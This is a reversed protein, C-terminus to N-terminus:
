HRDIKMTRAFDSSADKNEQLRVDLTHKGITVEQRGVLGLRTIKRGDVLTGNTSKLDEIFYGTKDRVIRAHRDSVALNDITIDNASNRGITIEEKDMKFTDLITDKLELTIELMNM